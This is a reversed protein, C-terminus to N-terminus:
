RLTSAIPIAKQKFWDYLKINNSGARACNDCHDFADGDFFACAECKERDFGIGLPVYYRTISGSGDVTCPGGCLSCNTIHLPPKQQIGSDHIIPPINCVKCMDVSIVQKSDQHGVRVNLPEGCTSCVVNISSM